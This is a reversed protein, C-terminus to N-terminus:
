AVPERPGAGASRRPNRHRRPLDPRNLTTRM